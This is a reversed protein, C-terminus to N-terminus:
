SNFTDNFSDSYTPLGSILKRKPPIKMCQTDGTLDNVMQPTLCCFLQMLNMNDCSEEQYCQSLLWIEGENGRGQNWVESQRVKM